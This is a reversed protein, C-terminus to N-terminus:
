LSRNQYAEALEDDAIWCMLSVNGDPDENGVWITDNFELNNLAAELDEPCSVELRTLQQNRRRFFRTKNSLKDAFKSRFAPFKKTGNIKRRGLLQRSRHGKALPCKAVLHHPSGCSYCLRRAKEQPDKFGRARLNNEVLMKCLVIETEAPDADGWMHHFEDPGEETEGGRTVPMSNLQSATVDFISPTGQQLAHLQQTDSGAATMWTSAQTEPLLEEAIFLTTTAGTQTSVRYVNMAWNAADELTLQYGPNTKKKLEEQEYIKIVMESCKSSPDRKGAESLRKVYDGVLTNPDVKLHQRTGGVKQAAQQMQIRLQEPHGQYGIADYQERARHDADAPRFKELYVTKFHNWNSTLLAREDSAPDITTWWTKVLEPSAKIALNAKIVAPIAQDHGQRRWEAEQLPTWNNDVLRFWNIPDPDREPDWAPFEIKDSLYPVRARANAANPGEAANSINQLLPEFVARMADILQQQPQQANVNMQEQMQQQMEVQTQAITYMQVANLLKANYGLVTQHLRNQELLLERPINANTSAAQGTNQSTIQFDLSTLQDMLARCVDLFPIDGQLELAARANTLAEPTVSRATLNEVLVKLDGLKRKESERITYFVM